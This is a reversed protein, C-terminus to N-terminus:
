IELTLVNFAYYHQKTNQMAFNSVINLVTRWINLITKIQIDIFGLICQLQWGDMGSQIAITIAISQVKMFTPSHFHKTKAKIYPM